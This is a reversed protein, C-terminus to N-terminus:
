NDVIQQFIIEQFDRLKSSFRTKFVALGPIDVTKQFTICPYAPKNVEILMDSNANFVNTIRNIVGYEFNHNLCLISKWLFDNQTM